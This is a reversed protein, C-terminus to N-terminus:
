WVPLDIDVVIPKNFRRPGGGGGRGTMFAANVMCTERRGMRKGVAEADPLSGVGEGYAARVVISEEQSASDPGDPQSSEPRCGRRLMPFTPSCLKHRTQAGDNDIPHRGKATLDVLSQKNNGIGPDSWVETSEEQFQGESIDLNWRVREVGRGEHIHGFVAMSPRVRWLAKRLAECGSMDKASTACHHMPPTHTIVIDTDLPITDWLAM